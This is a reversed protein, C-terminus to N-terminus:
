IKCLSDRSYKLSKEPEWYSIAKSAILKAAHVDLRSILERTAVIKGPSVIIEDYGMGLLLLIAAPEDVMPSSIAARKHRQHAKSVLDQLYSLYASDFYNLISNSTKDEQDAAYLCNLSDEGAVFFRSEFCFIDLAQLVAPVDAMVGIEMPLRFPTENGELEAQVEKILEKVKIVEDVRRVMPLVINFEGHTGAMMVARLQTKLIEPKGLGLRIGRCGSALNPDNERDIFCSDWGSAVFTVSRSGMAKMIGCYTQYQEEGSPLKPATDFFSNVNLLGIGEVGSEAALKLQEWTGVRATLRITKGDATVASAYETMNSVWAIIVGDNHYFLM